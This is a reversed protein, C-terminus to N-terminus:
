QSFKYWNTHYLIFLDLTVLTQNLCQPCIAFNVNQEEDENYKQTREIQDVQDQGHHCHGVFLLMLNYGFLLLPLFFQHLFSFRFQALQQFLHFLRLLRLTPLGRDRGSGMGSTGTLLRPMPRRGFWVTWFDATRGDDTGGKNIIITWVRWFCISTGLFNDFFWGSSSFITFVASGRDSAFSQASHFSRKVDLAAFGSGTLKCMNVKCVWWHWQRWRMWGKVAQSAKARRTLVLWFWEPRRWLDALNM